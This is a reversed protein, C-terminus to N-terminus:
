REGGKKAAQLFEEFLYGTGMPDRSIEPDFQLSLCGPRLYRLGEVVGDNVNIHSVAAVQSSISEEEVCYGHDQATIYVQGTTLDKVPQNCGRHGFHMKRVCAGTALALLEHGLGLGLLPRGSKYLAKVTEVLEPEERPDGPGGTVVVGDFDDALLAEAPTRAPFVELECGREAMADLLSDTAGLDLVALRCEQKGRAPCNVQMPRTVADVQGTIRYARLKELAEEVSFSGADTIMANMTGQSRLIRTLERTDVNQIGTIHHENLYAALDGERRFNSGREILHRVVLAKVWPQRSQDDESNVGYNGILPYTMVVGQGAYAPNTLIEQYGTTATHFVLEFVQERAEGIGDGYFVSGNELILAVRM